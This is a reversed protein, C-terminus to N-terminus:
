SARRESRAPPRSELWARGGKKGSRPDRRVLRAPVSSVLREPLAIRECGSDQQFLAASRELFMDAPGPSRMEAGCHFNILEGEGRSAAIEVFGRIESDSYLALNFHDPHALFAPLALKCGSGALETVLFRRAAELDSPERIQRAELRPQLLLGREPAGGVMKGLLLAFDGVEDPSLAHLAARLQRAATIEIRDLLARGSKALRLAFSRRDGADSKRALLGRRKLGHIATSLTNPLAGLRECLAAAPSGPEDRLECLIHWQLSTIGEIQFIARSHLGMRRTCRGIQLRMPLGRPHLAVRAAGYGDALTEYYRHLRSREQAHLASLLSELAANASEHYGRMFREGAATLRLKQRRRDATDQLANVYGLSKLAGLSRSMSSKPLQLIERLEEIELEPNGELLILLQAESLSLDTGRAGGVYRNRVQLERNLRHLETFPALQAARAEAAHDEM